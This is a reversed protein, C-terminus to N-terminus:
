KPAAAISQIAVGENAAYTAKVGNLKPMGLKGGLHHLAIVEWLNANFVPSGSSGGETPARYHVRCVGEIQPRGAPPGEHDLLENDQFSYSLARGGAHGIVYVRPKPTDALLPLDKAVPLPKVAADVPEALRLVCADHRDVPSEWLIKAIAYVKEASVAEFVVEAEDPRLAANAGKENVVHFNTLVVTEEAPQLGLDGARMLFGTGFRDGLRRRVAAISLGRELGMKWWAYTKPGDPGLIAELQGQAPEPQERLRQLDGAVINLQGGPLQMLRARLINVIGKGRPDAGAAELGWIQTFQRLTSEIHFRAVLPSTAYARLNQEVAQWDGLGLSAEAVTALHWGDRDAEPIAALSTMLQKAVDVPKLGPAVNIGLRRGLALMGLLNVGHWTSAPNAEFPGRYAAVAERLAQQAGASSKDGAEFFIQKNARGLLGMAELLEPDGEPLRRTLAQLVDIAATARGTEILCQAYLRRNKADDRDVRRVAEALQAMLAYEVANRLEEVLQKADALDEEPTLGGLKGLAVATRARLKELTLPDTM